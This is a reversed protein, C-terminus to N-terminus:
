PYHYRFIPSGESSAKKGFIGFLCVRSGEAASAPPAPARHLWHTYFFCVDGAAMRVKAVSAGGTVGQEDAEVLAFVRHRFADQNATATMALTDKWKFGVPPVIFETAAM